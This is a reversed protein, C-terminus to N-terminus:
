SPHAIILKFIGGAGLDEVHDIILGAQQINELTRRNINAGMARVVFPNVWDIIKGIVPNRSRMHELFLIKGGPKVVRGMERMGLVPNPVSCFVFTAVAADFRNEPFPLSQADALRLDVRIGMERARKIARDLMGPTLDIATISKGSPYYPFNKGNLGYLERLVCILGGAGVASLFSRM